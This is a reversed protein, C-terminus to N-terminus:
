LVEVDSEEEHEAHEHFSQAVPAFRDLFSRSRFSGRVRRIPRGARACSEMFSSFMQDKGAARLERLQPLLDPPLEEDGQPLSRLIDKVLDPGVILTEVGTFIQLLQRWLAQDVEDQERPWQGSADVGLDLENAISLIPSLAPFIQAAAAVQWDLRRCYVALELYSDQPSRLLDQYEFSELYTQQEPSFCSPPQSVWFHEESFVMGVGDGPEFQGTLCSILRSLSTFNYTLQHSLHVSLKRLLPTDLRALLGDLYASAGKFGLLNLSPLTTLSSNLPTHSTGTEQLGRFDTSSFSIWLDELHPMASLWEVLSGVPFRGYEPINFLCLIVLDPASAPTQLVLPLSIGEITFQRLSPAHFRAPLMLNPRGGTHPAIVLRELIPYYRDMALVFKNLTSLPLYTLHVSDLRDAHRELLILIQNHPAHSDQNTDAFDADRVAPTAGHRCQYELIIPIRLFYEPIAKGLSHESLSVRLNLHSASSLILTRWRRCVHALRHWSRHQPGLEWSNTYYAVYSRFVGLLADDDIVDITAVRSIARGAFVCLRLDSSASDPYYTAVYEAPAFNRVSWFRM